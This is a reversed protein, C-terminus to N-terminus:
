LVHVQPTKRKYGSPGCTTLGIAPLGARELIPRFSRGLVNSKRLRGGQTDCFVPGEKVDLGEALMAKRHDALATMAFATSGPGSCTRAPETKKGSAGAGCPSAPLLRSLLHSGM